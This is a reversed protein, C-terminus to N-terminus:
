RDSGSDELDSETDGYSAEKERTIRFPISLTVAMGAPSGARIDFRHNPGYLHSLRARTNTLGFGEKFAAM